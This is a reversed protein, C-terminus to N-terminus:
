RASPQFTFTLTGEAVSPDVEGKALTGDVSQDLVSLKVAVTGNGKADRFEGTGGRVAGRLRLPPVTAAAILLHCRDSQSSSARM